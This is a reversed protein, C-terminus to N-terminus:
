LPLWSSSKPEWHATPQVWSRLGDMVKESNPPVANQNKKKYSFSDSLIKNKGLSRSKRMAVCSLNGNLFQTLGRRHEGRGTELGRLLAGAKGGPRKQKDSFGRCVTGVLM